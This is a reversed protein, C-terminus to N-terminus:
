RGLLAPIDPGWVYLTTPSGRRRGDLSLRPRDPVARPGAAIMKMVVDAPVGLDTLVSPDWAHKGSLARLQDNTM